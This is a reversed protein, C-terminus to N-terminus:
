RAEANREASRIADLRKRAENRGPFAGPADLAMAYLAEAERIENKAELIRALLFAAESDLSERQATRKLLPEATPKELRALVKGFTLLYAPDSNDGGATQQAIEIAREDGDAALALALETRAEDSDPHDVLYASLEREATAADGAYRAITGRILPLDESTPQVDRLAEFAALALETRELELHWAIMPRLVRPDGPFQRGAKEMWLDAEAFEKAAAYMRAIVVPAPPLNADTASAEEIAAIGEERRGVQFLAVGWRHRAGIDTPTLAVWHSLVIEAGAWHGRREAVSALGALARPRDEPSTRSFDAASLESARAFQLEADSLRGQVLAIEGLTLHTECYDPYEVAVRELQDIAEPLRGVSALFRALLLRPPHLTPDRDAARHLLELAVRDEKQRFATQANDLLEVAALAEAVASETEKIQELQRLAEDTRGAEFLWRAHTLGAPPRASDVKRAKELVELAGAADNARFRVQALRLLQEQPTLRSEPRSVDSGFDALTPGGLAVSGSLAFVLLVGIRIERRSQM